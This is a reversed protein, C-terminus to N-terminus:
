EVFGNVELYNTTADAFDTTAILRVLLDNGFNSRLNGAASISTFLDAATDDTMPKSTLLTATRNDPSVEYVNLAITGATINVRGNAQRLVSQFPGGLNAKKQSRSFNTRRASVRYTLCLSVSTDALLGLVERKTPGLTYEARALLINTSTDARLGDVIEAEWNPSANIADVMAGLTTYTGDAVVGSAGVTSDVALSGVPGHKVTIDGSAVTVSAGAQSGKYRIAILVPTDTTVRGSGNLQLRTGNYTKLMTLEPPLVM